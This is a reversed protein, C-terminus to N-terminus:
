AAETVEARIAAAWRTVLDDYARKQEASLVGGSQALLARIQENLEAASRASGCSPTNPSM